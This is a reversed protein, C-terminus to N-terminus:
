DWDRLFPKPTPQASEITKLVSELSNVIQRYNEKKNHADQPTVTAAMSAMKYCNNSIEIAQKFAAENAAEYAAREREAREEEARAEQLELKQRKQKQNQKERTKRNREKQKKVQRAKDEAAKAQQALHLVQQREAPGMDIKFRGDGLRLLQRQFIINAVRRTHELEEESKWMYKHSRIRDPDQPTTNDCMFAVAAKRIGQM